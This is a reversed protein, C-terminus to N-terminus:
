SVKTWVGFQSKSNFYEQKSMSRLKMCYGRHHGLAYYHGRFVDPQGRCINTAEALGRIMYPCHLIKKADVIKYIYSPIRRFCAAVESLNPLCYSLQGGFVYM